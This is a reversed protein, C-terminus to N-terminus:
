ANVTDVMFTTKWNKKYEKSKFKGTLIVVPRVPKAITRNRTIKSEEVSEDFALNGGSTEPQPSSKSFYQLHISKLEAVADFSCFAHSSEFKGNEDRLVVIGNAYEIKNKKSIDITLSVIEGDLDYQNKTM